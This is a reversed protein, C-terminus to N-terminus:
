EVDRRQDGRRKEEIRQGRLIHWQPMEWYLDQKKQQSEGQRKM